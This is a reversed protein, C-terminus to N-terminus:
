LLNVFYRETLLMICEIERGTKSKRHGNPTVVRQIPLLKNKLKERLPHQHKVEFADIKLGKSLIRWWFIAKM